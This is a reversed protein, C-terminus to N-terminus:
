ASTSPRDTFIAKTGSIENPSRLGNLGFCSISHQPSMPLTDRLVRHAHRCRGHHQIGVDAAANVDSNDTGFGAITLVVPTGDIATITIGDNNSTTLKAPM